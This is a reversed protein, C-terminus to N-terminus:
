ELKRGAKGVLSEFSGVLGGACREEGGERRWTKCGWKKKPLNQKMRVKNVEEVSVHGTLM